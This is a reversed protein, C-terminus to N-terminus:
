SYGGPVCFADRAAAPVVAISALPSADFGNGKGSARLLAGGARNDSM